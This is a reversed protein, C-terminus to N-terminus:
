IIDLYDPVVLWLKRYVRGTSFVEEFFEDWTKWMKIKRENANARFESIKKDVLAKAEIDFRSLQQVKWDDQVDSVANKGQEELYSIRDQLTNEYIEDLVKYMDFLILYNQMLNDILHQTENRVEILSFVLKNDLNMKRVIIYLEDDTIIEDKLKSLFEDRVTDFALNFAIAEDKSGENFLKVKDKENSM